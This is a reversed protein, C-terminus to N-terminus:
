LWIVGAIVIKPWYAWILFNRQKERFFHRFSGMQKSFKKTRLRTQLNALISGKDIVEPENLALYHSFDNTEVLIGMYPLKAANAWFIIIFVM